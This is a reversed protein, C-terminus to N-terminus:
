ITALSKKKQLLKKQLMLKSCERRALYNLAAHIVKKKDKNISEVNDDIM